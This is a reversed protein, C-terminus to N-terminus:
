TLRVRPDLSAYSVDVLLNVLLYGIAIVLVFGQIVSYDRAMIAETVARGVGSLNFITETLIAGGFLSGVQIGIITAVPLMANPLGHRRVVSRDTLGKARATRIYDLGLVDLLSSRTIRAIIALPITGLAIAPLILHRLADGLIKWQGTILANMTYINSLFDVAARGPGSLTTLHWTEALPVISLGPTLRGSSPLAIPTGKLGIAFVYALLLGLVFIPISVGLNAGAMTIVDIASNRRYASIVGLLVGVSIAFLLAVLSLELTMPLRQILLMTVPQSTRISSGLDGHAIQGLYTQFQVLVPLDYGHAHNFAACAQVTAHEGLLAACQSGPLIHGLVFVLVLLGFLVPITLILRRVIYRTM